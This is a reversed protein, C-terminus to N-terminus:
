KNYREKIQPEGDGLTVEIGGFYRDDYKLYSGEVAKCNMLKYSDYDSGPEFIRIKHTHGFLMIEPKIKGCVQETWYRYIDQEIDFPPEDIHVFPSHSIVVKHKIGEQEYEKDEIVKDLFETEERRYDYFNVVNNISYFSDDKDEGCDLVLGWLSGVRFTYYSRGNVQPIYDIFKEAYRGRTEHNGRALVVPKTGGVLASAMLFANKVQKLDSSEGNVDGNFVLLDIENECTFGADIPEEVLGHSDAIHFINIKDSKIPYFKFDVSVPDEVLPSGDRREIMKRYVVKYEEAKDLEATPVKIRHIDTTSCLVGNSSNYYRKGNVEVWVIAECTFPIMIQYDNEVAYVSPCCLFNEPVTYNKREIM